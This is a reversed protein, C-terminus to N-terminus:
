PPSRRLKLQAGNRRDRRSAVTPNRAHGLPEIDFRQATRLVVDVGVLDDSGQECVTEDGGVVWSRSVEDDDIRTSEDLLRAALRDVRHECEGLTAFLTGAEDDRSAHGLTVPGLEGLRQGLNVLYGPEAHRYLQPSLRQRHARCFNRAEVQEVQRSRLRDVRPSWGHAYTFIASPHSRVHPNQAIGDKRPGCRLRSM